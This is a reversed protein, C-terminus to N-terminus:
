RSQGTDRAGVGHTLVFIYIVAGIVLALLLAPFLQLGVAAMGFWLVFFFFGAWLGSSIRPDILPGPVYDGAEALGTLERTESADLTIEVEDTVKLAGFLATYPKIGWQSQTLVVKADLRGDAGTDVDFALPRTRGALTLEGRVHLTDGDAEVSTSRFTISRRKLIEDDITQEISAKDDDGLPQMGGTGYQVRLSSADIEAAVATAAGVELTAHWSTVHLLLDHGAVAAAGVRGTRVSLTANEPDLEYVGPALPV